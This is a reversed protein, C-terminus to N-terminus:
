MLLAPTLADLMAAPETNLRLLRAVAVTVFPVAYSTGSSAAYGELRLM